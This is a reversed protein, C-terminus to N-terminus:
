IPPHASVLLPPKSPVSHVAHLQQSHVQIDGVMIDDEMLYEMEKGDLVMTDVGARIKSLIHVDGRGARESKDMRDMKDMREMKDMKDMRDMKSLKDSPHKSPELRRAREADGEM